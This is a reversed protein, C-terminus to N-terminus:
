LKYQREFSISFNSIFHITSNKVVELYSRGHKTIWPLVSPRLCLSGSPLTVTAHKCEAPGLRGLM